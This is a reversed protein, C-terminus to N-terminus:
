QQSYFTEDPLEIDPPYYYNSSDESCCDDDIFPTLHCTFSCDSLKRPKLIVKFERPFSNSLNISSRTSNEMAKEEDDEEHEPITPLPNNPDFKTMALFLRRKERPTRCKLKPWSQSSSEHHHHYHDHHQTDHSLRISNEDYLESPYEDDLGEWESSEEEAVKLPHKFYLFFLLCLALFFLVFAGIEISEEAISHWGKM